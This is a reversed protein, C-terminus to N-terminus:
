RDLFRRRDPARAALDDSRRCQRRRRAGRRGSQRWQRGDVVDTKPELYSHALMRGGTLVAMRNAIANRINSMAILQSNTPPTGPRSLLVFGLRFEKQAHDADPVRGKPRWWMM